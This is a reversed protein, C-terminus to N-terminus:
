RSKSVRPPYSWLTVSSPKSLAQHVLGIFDEKSTGSDERLHNSWLELAMENTGINDISLRIDSNSPTNANSQLILNRNELIEAQLANQEIESLNSRPAIVVNEKLRTMAEASIKINKPFTLTKGTMPEIIQISNATTPETTATYQTSSLPPATSQAQSNSYGTNNVSLSM